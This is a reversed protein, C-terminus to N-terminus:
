RRHSRVGHQEPGADPDAAHALMKRSVDAGYWRHIRPALERSVRGMGPGLELVTHSPRIDLATM